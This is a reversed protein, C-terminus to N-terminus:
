VKDQYFKVGGFAILILLLVAFTTSVAVIVTKDNEPIRDLYSVTFNRYKVDGPFSVKWQCAYRGNEKINGQLPL